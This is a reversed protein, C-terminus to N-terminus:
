GIVWIQSKFRIMEEHEKRKLFNSYLEDLNKDRNKKYLGSTFFSDPLFHQLKSWDFCLRGGIKLNGFSEPLSTFENGYLRLDGGIKINCFSEPLSTLNNGDLSLDGGVKLNGFSEPLSTLNNNNLRLGGGIKLNGFSEPLSTLENDDLLLGGGIKLNGFSEPLSTLKKYSLWLWDDVKVCDSNVTYEVRYKDLFDTLEKFNNNMREGM